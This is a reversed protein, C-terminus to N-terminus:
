KVDIHRLSWRLLRREKDNGARDIAAVLDAKAGIGAPGMYGIAVTARERQALNDSKLAPALVALSDEPYRKLLDFAWTPLNNTEGELTKKAMAVAGPKLNDGLERLYSEFIYRAFDVDGMGFGFPFRGDPEIAWATSQRLIPNKVRSQYIAPIADKAVPGLMSLYIMMNYGDYESARPLERIMFEVAPHADAGGIQAM